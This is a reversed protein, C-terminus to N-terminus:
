RVILFPFPGEGNITCAVAGPQASGRHDLCRDRLRSDDHRGHLDGLEESSATSAGGCGAAAFLTLVLGSSLAAAVLRCFSTKQKM